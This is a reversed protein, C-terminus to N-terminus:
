KGSRHGNRAANKVGRFAREAEHEIRGREESLRGARLAKDLRKSLKRRIRRVDEM